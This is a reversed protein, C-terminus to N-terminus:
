NSPDFQPKKEMPAAQLKNLRQTSQTYSANEVLLVRNDELFTAKLPVDSKEFLAMVNAVPGEYVDDFQGTFTADAKIMYNVGPWRVTWKPSSQDGWIELNEKLSKGAVLKWTKVPSVVPTNMSVVSTAVGEKITIKTEAAKPSEKIKIDLTETVNGKKEEALVEVKETKPTIKEKVEVTTTTVNDQVAVTKTGWDVVINAGSQNAFGSLADLWTINGNFSVKQSMDVSGVKKASWGNPVVIKLSDILSLEKGYGKVRIDAVNTPAGVQTLQGGSKSAVATAPGSKITEKVSVTTSAVQTPATDLDKFEAHAASAVGFAVASIALAKVTNRNTKHSKM